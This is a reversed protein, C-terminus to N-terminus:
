AIQRVRKRLPRLTATSKSVSQLAQSSSPSLRALSSARGSARRTVSALYASLNGPLRSRDPAAFSLASMGGFLARVSYHRLIRQPDLIDATRLRRLLVHRECPGHSHNNRMRWMHLTWMSYTLVTEHHDNRERATCGTRANYRLLASRMRRLARPFGDDLLYWLSVQMPSAHDWERRPLTCDEFRRVLEKTELVLPTDPYKM